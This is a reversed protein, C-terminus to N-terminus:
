MKKYNLEEDLQKEAKKIDELFDPAKLSVSLGKGDIRIRIWGNKIRVQNLKATNKHIKALKENYRLAIKMRPCLNDGSVTPWELPNELINLLLGMLSKKIKQTKAIEFAQLIKETSHPSDVLKKRERNNLPSDEFLLELSREEEDSRLSIEKDPKEKKLQPSSLPPSYIKKFPEEETTQFPVGRNRSITCTLSKKFAKGNEEWIDIIMVTDAIEKKRDCPTIHILSKGGLLSFPRSLNKKCKTITTKNLGTQHELGRTGVWCAGEEGAIRRYVSYLLFDSATIERHKLLEYVVNPIQTFHTRPIEQFSVKSPLEKFM